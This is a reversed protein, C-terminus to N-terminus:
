DANLSADLRDILEANGLYVPTREHVDAPVAELMSGAGTSARGGAAEVIYGMPIGEFQLRLKGEPRDRLAPYAFMGGHHLIQNVDGVMAGGYRLKLEERIEGAFAAFEPTWDPDKGGFGYVVPETPLTLDRNLTRTEGGRLALETVTEDVAVVMTTIPGYLVYAAAVIDDGGAPLPADFIGIITGCLNNTKVNSSGDLPDIAVSLGDGVDIPETREESAVQGVGDISGLRDILLEDAWVDAEIADDGTPHEDDVAAGRHTWLGDAIEPGVQTVVELIRDVVTDSAM